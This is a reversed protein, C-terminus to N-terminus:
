INNSEEILINAVQSDWWYGFKEILWKSKSSSQSSVEALTKILKEKFLKEPFSEINKMINNMVLQQKWKYNIPMNLDERDIKGDIMKNKDILQLQQGQSNNAAPLRMTPIDFMSAEYINALGSNAIALKTVKLLDLMKKRNLTQINNEPMMEAIKKNWLIIVEEKNTETAKTVASIIKHAYHCITEDKWFPNTLWWFNLIIKNRELETNCLDSIIPSVIKANTMKEFGLREEVDLFNQAIYLNANKWWDPIKKWFWTLADYIWTWLWKERFREALEFDMASFFMDYEKSLKEILKETQSDDLCSIDYKEDYNLTEQLDLTHRSWIYWIKSFKGELYPYFTAIAASPWYWFAEANLLIKKNSYMKISVFFYVKCCLENRGTAISWLSIIDSLM